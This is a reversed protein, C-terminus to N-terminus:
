DNWGGGEPEAEEIEEKVFSYFIENLSIPSMSFEAKKEILASAMKMAGEESTMIRTNNATRVVRGSLHPVRVNNGVTVMYRYRIRKRIQDMSGHALLRGKDLIGISDALAEAEELYHTTLFIFRHSKLKHLTNWLAYRSVPDLGTTPEDMFIIEAESALVCGVLVKRKTGGSLHGVNKDRDNYINLDKLVSIARTQAERSGYGRWLLYTYIMQQPTVWAVPRSEQPIVAIIERLEKADEVVDLGNITASGSSPMLQTGLIRTLTTKGAGNRGILGFIGKTEIKLDVKDLSRAKSNGYSKTLKVCNITM